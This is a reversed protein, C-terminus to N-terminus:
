IWNDNNGNKFAMGLERTSMSTHKDLELVWVGNQRRLQVQQAAAQTVISSMRNPDEDNSPLIANSFSFSAPKSTSPRVTPPGGVCRFLLPLTSEKWVAMRHGHTSIITLTMAALGLAVLSLPYAIWAWRVTIISQTRLTTGATTTNQLTQFAGTLAAAVGQVVFTFNDATDIAQQGASSWPGSLQTFGTADFTYSHSPDTPNFYGAQAYTTNGELAVRLSQILLQAHGQTTTDGADLISYTTKNVTATWGPHELSVAGYSTSVPNSILSGSRVQTDMTNVCPTLACKTARQVLLQSSNPSLTMDLSGVAFLPAPLGAFTSNIWSRSWLSNPSPDINLPWVSRRPYSLTWQVENGPILSLTVNVTLSNGQPFSYTPAWSSTSTSQNSQAFTQLQSTLNTNYVEGSVTVHDTMNECISCMALTNYAPWTCNGTSCIPHPIAGSAGGLAGILAAMSLNSGGLNGTVTENYSIPTRITAPASVMPVNRVEITVLQQIFPEFGLSLITVLAALLARLSGRYALILRLSGYPGRSAEEFSDVTHLPRPMKIFWLWKEQRIAAAVVLMLSAKALSALFSIIANISLTDPLSPVPRSDYALLIGAITSLICLCLAAAGLEWAWNDLNLQALWSPGKEIAQPTITTRLDHRRTFDEDSGTTKPFISYIAVPADKESGMGPRIHWTAGFAM